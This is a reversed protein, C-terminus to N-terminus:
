GREGDGLLIEEGLEEGRERRGDTDGSGIGEGRRGETYRWGM